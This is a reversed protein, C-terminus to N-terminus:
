IKSRDFRAVVWDMWWDNWGCLACYSRNHNGRHHQIHHKPHMLIRCWQLWRVFYPCQRHAMQHSLQSVSLGVGLSIGLMSPWTACIIPIGVLLYIPNFCLDNPCRHHDEFAKVFRPINYGYDTAIHFVGSALDAILWGCWILLVTEM